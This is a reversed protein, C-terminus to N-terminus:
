VDFEIEGQQIIGKDNSIWVHAKTSHGTDMKGAAYVKQPLVTPRIGRFSFRKIKKNPHTDLFGNLAWTALMPGHVVLGDYGEVQTAYPYDYHIRHGNFTVASYRFLQTADPSHEIQWEACPAQHSTKKPASPERYVVDQWETFCHQQNQQYEHKITVFLLSGTQGQKEEIKEISSVCQAVEGIILDQIFEFRGGAWMRNRVDAQALLQHTAPHGDRGLLSSELAPQFFMWHWLLPLAEGQKPIDRALTAAMRQALLPSIFDIKHEVKHEVISQNQINM